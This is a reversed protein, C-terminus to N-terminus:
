VNRVGDALSRRRKAEFRAFFDNGERASESRLAYRASIRLGFFKTAIIWLLGLDPRTRLIKKSAAFILFHGYIRLLKDVPKKCFYFLDIAQPQPFKVALNATRV